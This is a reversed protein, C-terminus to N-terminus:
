GITVKGVVLLDCPKLTQLFIHMIHMYIAQKHMSSSIKSTLFFYISSFPKSYITKGGAMNAHFEQKTKVSGKQTLHNPKYIELLLDSLITM